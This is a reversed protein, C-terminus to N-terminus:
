HWRSNLESHQRVDEDGDLWYPPKSFIQEVQRALEDSIHLHSGQRLLANIVRPEKGICYALEEPGIANEDLLRQMHSRRKSDLQGM